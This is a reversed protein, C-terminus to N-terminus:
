KYNSGLAIDYLETPMKTFIQAAISTWGATYRSLPRSDTLAMELADTCMEVNERPVKELGKWTKAACAMYHELVAGGCALQGKDLAARCDAFRRQQQAELGGFFQTGIAGPELIAVHIKWKCLEMRLADGIAEVSHKSACYSSIGAETFRGVVSSVLIVRAGHSSSLSFERLLPLFQQTFHVLGVVNTEFM